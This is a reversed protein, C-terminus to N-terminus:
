SKEELPYGIFRYGYGRVTEIWPYPGLKARLNKIHTDAIREYSESTYDFCKKLIESRPLIRSTNGILLGLIRWEAATLAVPENNVTVKHEVEDFCMVGSEAKYYYKHSTEVEQGGDVRRLIAQVRLVLEKPSFPKSIYDDAGLEFGHIRDEEAIKATMFIVPIDMSARLEKVFEFGDGDPLMVDQILLDAKTIRFAERVSALNGFGIVKYGALELYRRVGERIVQHDEVVYILKM